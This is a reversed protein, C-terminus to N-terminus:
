RPTEGHFYVMPLPRLARASVRGIPYLPWWPRDPHFAQLQPFLGSDMAMVKRRGLMYVHGQTAVTAGLPYRLPQVGSM